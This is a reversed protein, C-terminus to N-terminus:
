EEALERLLEEAMARQSWHKPASGLAAKLMERARESEGAEQHLVGRWYLFEPSGPDVSLARDADEVAGGQDGAKWRIESRALLAGALKPDIQIARDYDARAQETEGREQRVAGRGFHSTADLPDIALAREFERLAGDADGVERLAFGRLRHLAAGRLGYEQARATHRLAAEGDQRELAAQAAKLALYLGGRSPRGLPVAALAVSAGLFVAVGTWILRRPGPRFTGALLWGLLLGCALGGLHAYNDMPLATFGVVLWLGVMFLVRKVAPHGFFADWSGMRVRLFSLIMGIMAFGAGSAGAAPVDQLNVSAATAAVGSVLYAGVFRWTGVVREVTACWGFMGWTNWLLHVWGIHLFMPTVFRWYEGSWILGRESAGMQLLTETKTTDGVGEAILFVVVNTLTFLWTAPSAAVSRTFGPARPPREEGEAM